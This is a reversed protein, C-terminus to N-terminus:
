KPGELAAGLKGRLRLHDDSVSWAVLDLSAPSDLLARGGKGVDLLALAVALDGAWLLGARHGVALARRRLGEINALHAANNQGLQQVTHRAKRTLEKKLVKAREGISSEDSALRHALAPPIPVDCARLAAAITWELETERLEELSAVGEAIKAVARGLAFRQAPTTAAAVDAGVLLVPTEAALARAFGLREAHIYLEVDEIGFCALTNALAQHRDGLKKIPVRDGRGFGLKGPDVGTATQVAPAIARWLELLPGALEGRLMARAPPDLKVRQPAMLRSRGAALVQRQDISPTALAEYAVLAVWRGDVDAQWATVQALREYNAADHPLEAIASRFSGATSALATARTQPDLLEALERVVDLNLPDLTRARDLALRAGVRDNVKDRLMIGLRLEERAKDQPTPRLRALARLEEVARPWDDVRICLGLLRERLQVDDPNAQVIRSLGEIAGAIDNSSESLVQALQLEIERRRGPRTEAALYRRWLAIARQTDGAHFALDARFRLAEVHEPARELLVDLDAMSAIQDGSGHLVTARELLHPVLDGHGDSELWAIRDSLALILARADGRERLLELWREFEPAGPVIAVIRKYTAVAYDTNHTLGPGDFVAAAERLLQLKFERDGILRALAYGASAAAGKDGARIAMRRLASLARLDEPQTRLVGVVVTGAERLRGALELAEARDLEWAASGDSQHALAARMELVEARALLPDVAAFPDKASVQPMTGTEAVVLLASVDDPAAVRAASVRQNALEVDASAAALAAARLFLAAAGEPMQIARALGEYAQALQAQEGRRSAVLAAGLLAGRRTSEFAIAADFAQAARDFDELVLAYIWGSDEALV